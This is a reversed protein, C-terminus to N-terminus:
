LKNNADRGSHESSQSSKAFSEATQINLLSYVLAEVCRILVAFMLSFYLIPKFFQLYLDKSKVRHFM